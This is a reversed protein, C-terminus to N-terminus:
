ISKNNLQERIADSLEKVGDTNGDTGLLGGVRRYTINGSRDIVIHVPFAINGTGDGYKEMIFDIADSVVKYSFENKDLFTKLNPAKDLSPAIFVVGKGAFEKVLGNLNPIEALCPACGLFWFNLVVIKGKLKALSLEEGDISTLSFDPAKGLSVTNDEKKEILANFFKNPDGIAKAVKKLNDLGFTKPAHISWTSMSPKISQTSTGPGVNQVIKTSAIQGKEGSPKAEILNQFFDTGGGIKKSLLSIKEAGFSVPCEIVWGNSQDIGKEKPDLYLKLIWTIPARESNQATNSAESKQVFASLLLLSLLASISSIKM